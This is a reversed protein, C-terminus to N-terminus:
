DALKRVEECLIAVGQEIEAETAFSYSLRIHHDDKGDWRFESGSWVAVGRDDCARKADEAKVGAPLRLWVFFGGDPRSWEGRSGLGRELGGLMVDRKRAYVRTLEDIHDFMHERMYEAVIRSAFPSAGLDFKFLMVTRLAEPPGMAWGLRLGAGLIKSFTGARIVQSRSEDLEFYSPLHSGAFRLEFYADDELLLFEHRRALELVARRRELSTTLGLPNQFNPITYFLKVNRGDAKAAAIGAELDELQPGESDWRVPHGRVGFNKFVRVGWSAEDILVWDGRNLFAQATMAIAQSSGSTIVIEETRLSLSELRKAKAAVIERLPQFGDRPGYLLASRDSRLVRQTAAILDEIPM